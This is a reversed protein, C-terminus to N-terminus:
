ENNYQESFCTIAFNDDITKKINNQLEVMNKSSIIIENALTAGNDCLLDCILALKEDIRKHYWDTIKTNSNKNGYKKISENLFAEEFNLLPEDFIFKTFAEVASDSMQFQNDMIFSFCLEQICDLYSYGINCDFPDNFADPRNLYVIEKELNILTYESDLSYYKYLKNNISKFRNAILNGKERVNKEKDYMSLLREIDRRRM